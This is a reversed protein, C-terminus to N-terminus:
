EAYIRLAPASADMCCVDEDNTYDASDPSFIRLYSHTEKRAAVRNKPSFESKLSITGHGNNSRKANTVRKAFPIIVPREATNDDTQLDSFFALNVRNESFDQQRALFSCLSQVTLKDLSKGAAVLTLLALATQSVEESYHTRNMSNEM